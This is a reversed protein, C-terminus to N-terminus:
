SPPLLGSANEVSLAGTGNTLLRILGNAGFPGDAGVARSLVFGILDMSGSGAWRIADPPLPPAPPPPPPPPLLPWLVADLPIFLARSNKELASRAQADPSVPLPPLTNM